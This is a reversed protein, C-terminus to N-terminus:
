EESSTLQDIIAQIENNIKDNEQKMLEEHHKRVKNENDEVINPNISKDFYRVKMHGSDKFSRYLSKDYEKDNAKIVSSKTDEDKYLVIYPDFISTMLETSKCITEQLNTDLPVIAELLRNSFTSENSLYVNVPISPIKLLKAIFLILNTKIDPATLIEGDMKMYLPETIGNTVIEIFLKDFEANDLDGFKHNKRDIDWNYVSPHLPQFRYYNYPINISLINIPDKLSPILLGSDYNKTEFTTYHLSKPNIFHYQNLLIRKDSSLENHLDIKDNIVSARRSVDFLAEADYVTVLVDKNNEAAYKIYYPNVLYKEYKGVYESLNLADERDPLEFDDVDLIDLNKLSEKDSEYFFVDNSEILSNFEDSTLSLTKRTKISSEAFDMDLIPNMMLNSVLSPSNYVKSIETKINEM